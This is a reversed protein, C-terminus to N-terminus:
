ECGCGFSARAAEAVDIARRVGLLVTEGAAIVSISPSTADLGLSALDTISGDGKRGAVYYRRLHRAGTLVIRGDTGLAAAGGESYGAYVGSDGGVVVLKKDM